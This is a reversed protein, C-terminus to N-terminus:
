PEAHIPPRTDSVAPAAGVALATLAALVLATIPSANWGSAIQTVLLNLMSLLVAVATKVWPANPVVPAIYVGIATALAILIQIGETATVHGDSVTAQVATVVAIAVAVLAKGARDWVSM